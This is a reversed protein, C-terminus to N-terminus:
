QTLSGIHEVCVETLQEMELTEVFNLPCQIKNLLLTIYITNILM